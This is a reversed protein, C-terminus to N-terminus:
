MKAGYLLRLIGFKMRNQSERPKNKKKREEGKETKFKLQEGKIHKDM